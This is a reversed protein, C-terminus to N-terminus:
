GRSVDDDQRTGGGAGNRRGSWQEEDLPLVRTMLLDLEDGELVEVDKLRESMEHLLELNDQLVALTKAFLYSVIEQVEEDIIVATRESYGRQAMGMQQLFGPSEDGFSLNGVRESMGYDAVMRRAIDTVRQLDNAAGTSVDGFVIYEAARGGLLMCIKDHLELRTVLYRDELPVQLTYGLAGIGRSVISIKHVPDAHELAGAVIAHGSEHYAVINKERESLRRSKKELGAIVREIANQFDVMTVASKGTRAALLAAENVINALDAGVFGPTQAAVLELNVEPDLVVGRAHVDLIQRRGRKDPRDVVVQRDFRGSRLLAADLVEPRNTAALIIVGSRADFGDMEVLLANLTQEREENGQFGGGGRTKGIADLEDVFIICPAHEQAQQFLDRVRAAGVGVFMEVFDSGSLNFFPVEAEGAVARALLTKGTGPPGVLLVGKPVKGGLRTFKHPQRLFEIIEGLEEKAEDVGAVDAFTVGTGEEAYLKARSKGFSMVPSGGPPGGPTMASMRRILFSWFVFLLLLPLMWIWLLGGEPCGAEPVARYTVGREELLPIFAEDARVRAAQWSQFRDDDLEQRATEIAEDTPIAIVYHETLDVSAIEGATIRSKLESYPIEEIGAPAQLYNVAVLVGVIFLVLLWFTRRSMPPRARDGGAGPLQDGRGAKKKYDEM